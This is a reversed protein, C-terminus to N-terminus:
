LEFVSDFVSIGTQWDSRDKCKRCVRNSPYNTSLFYKHCSLCETKKHVIPPLGLKKRIANFPLERDSSM